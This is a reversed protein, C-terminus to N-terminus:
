GVEVLGYRRQWHQRLHQMIRERDAATIEGDRQEVINRAEARALDLLERDRLLNAVRFGPLGAQRTGFFEGPGRLELDREAIEFGDHTRVMTNLREEGEPSVKGGTM